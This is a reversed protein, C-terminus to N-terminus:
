DPRHLLKLTFPEKEFCVDVGKKTIFELVAASPEDLRVNTNFQKKVVTGKLKGANVAEEFISANPWHIRVTKGNEIEYRGFAFLNDATKPDVNVHVFRLKGAKTARVNLTEAKFKDTADDWELGGAFLQGRKSLHAEIVKGDDNTWTGALSKYATQDDDGLPQRISVSHCGIAVVSLLCIRFSIHKM